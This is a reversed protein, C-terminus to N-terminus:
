QSTAEPKFDTDNVVGYVPRRHVVVKDLKSFDTHPQIKFTQGSKVIVGVPLGSAFVGGIGSTVVPEGRQAKLEGDSLIIDMARYRGGRAIALTGSEMLKVPIRANHDGLLLVRSTGRTTELVRGALGVDSLVAQGNKVGKDEGADILVTRAYPSRTDALVRAAVPNTTLEEAMDLLAQLEKNEQRLYLAEHRWGELRANENRLKKNTEIVFFYYGLNDMFGEVALVPERLVKMVPASAEVIRNSLPNQRPLTQGMFLVLLVLALLVGYLIYRQKRKRQAQAM